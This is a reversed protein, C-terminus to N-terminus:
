MEIALLIRAHDIGSAGGAVGLERAVCALSHKGNAFSVSFPM